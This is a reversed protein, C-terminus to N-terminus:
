RRDRRGCEAPSSNKRRGTARFKRQCKAIRCANKAGKTSEIASWLETLMFNGNAAAPVRPLYRITRCCRWDFARSVRPFTTSSSHTRTPRPSCGSALVSADDLVALTAMGASVAEVPRVVTWEIPPAVSKEWELQAAELEPTSTALKQKVAAIKGDVGALEAAQEASPLQISPGWNGDVNAGSYLGREEIDAFFAEMRYFDRTAFPDFKHDHCEACGVTVGLWAGSVNRVREAIYKSLYEKPQVGGEASMMGLRNYGSAIQDEPTPQPMLDGGLQERTFQDFRKNENFARIVYERFPYVSVPQDGHYGVSDGYRVLDLWWMAMREGFRPSNLLEEVLQRYTEETPAAALRAVQEATPPLGTLDFAVRRALTVPDAQAALEVGATKLKARIFGDIPQAHGRGPTGCAAGASVGLAGAM